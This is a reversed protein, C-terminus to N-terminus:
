KFIHCKCFFRRKFDDGAYAINGELVALGKNLGVLQAPEGVHFEPLGDAVGDISRADNSESKPKSGAGVGVAPVTSM